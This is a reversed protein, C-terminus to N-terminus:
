SVKSKKAQKKKEEHRKFDESATLKELQKRTYEMKQLEYTDNNIRECCARTEASSPVVEDEDM